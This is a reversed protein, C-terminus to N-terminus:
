APALAPADEVRPPQAAETVVVSCGRCEFNQLEPQSHFAPIRRGLRMVVTCSPCIPPSDVIVM